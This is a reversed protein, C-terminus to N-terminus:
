AKAPKAAEKQAIKYANAKELGALEPPIAANGTRKTPARISFMQLGHTFDDSTLQSKVIVTM